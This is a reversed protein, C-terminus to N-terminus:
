RDLRISVRPHFTSTGTKEVRIARKKEERENWNWGIRVELLFRRVTGNTRRTKSPIPFPKSCSSTPSTSNERCAFPARQIKIAIARQEKTEKEKKKKKKLQSTTLTIKDRHFDFSPEVFVFFRYTHVFIYIHIKTSYNPKSHFSFIKKKKNLNTKSLQILSIQQILASVSISFKMIRKNHGIM